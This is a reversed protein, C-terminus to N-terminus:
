YYINILIDIIYARTDLSCTTSESKVGWEPLKRCTVM